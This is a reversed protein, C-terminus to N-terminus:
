GRGVIRIALLLAVAVLINGIYALSPCIKSVPLSMSQGMVVVSIDQICSGGGFADSQNIVNSMDETRNGPLDKTQEGEKGKEKAYLESEPSKDDFLLCARRHQEKSIACFIADGKCTFGAMCSGGFNSGNGDGDGDGDGGGGGSPPPETAVCTTGIRVMGPPCKGDGDPPKNEQVCLKKDSTLRYGEPCKPDGEEDEEGEIPDKTVPNPLGGSTGGGGPTNGGVPAPGEHPPPGNTGGNNNTGGGDNDNGSGDGSGGGGTGPGTGGDGTGPGTGPGTGGNDGGGDGPPNTGPGGPGSTSPGGNGGSCSRGTYRGPGSCEKKGDWSVCISPTIIVECKEWCWVTTSEGLSDFEGAPGAKCKAPKCVGNVREQGPPCPPEPVCLGGVRVENPQCNDPVCAGGEEHQGAPCPNKPKCMQDKAEFGAGCTCAGDVLASNAPCSATATATVNFTGLVNSGIRQEYTCTGHNADNQVSGTIVHAIEGGTNATATTGFLACAASVTAGTVSSGNSMNITWVSTTPVTGEASAVSAWFFLVAAILRYFNAM